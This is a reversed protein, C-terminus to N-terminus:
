PIYGGQLSVNRSLTTNELPLPSTGRKRCHEGIIANGYVQVREQLVGNERRYHCASYQPTALRCPLPSQIRSRQNSDLWGLWNEQLVLIHANSFAREEM